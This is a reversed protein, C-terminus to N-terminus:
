VCRSTYLLCPAETIAEVANLEDASPRVLNIWAGVEIRDPTLEILQSETTKTIKLM